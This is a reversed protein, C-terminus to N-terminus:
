LVDKFLLSTEIRKPQRQLIEVTQSVDGLYSARLMRLNDPHLLPNIHQGLRLAALAFPFPIHIMRAPGLGQAQRLTELWGVYSISESGAVDFTRQTRTVTLANLVIAAVDSVHIPQLLYKGDGVIPILPLKALRMLVETSSGGAGYILAPRLIIWDLDLSRLLNDAALKSRHYNSFAKEDTGLSSIQIVRKIGALKCAKFLATPTKTHVTEFRQTRTEGIIGVCNIVADITHLHPIWDGPELMSCFDIGHSRSVPTVTHGAKTLIDTIHRGVFGSAGTLLVNM